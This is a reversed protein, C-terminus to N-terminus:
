PSLYFSSVLESFAKLAWLLCWGNFSCRSPESDPKYDSVHRYQSHNHTKTHNTPPSSGLPSAGHGYTQSLALLHMNPCTSICLITHDTTRFLGKWSLGRTHILGMNWFVADMKLFGQLVNLLARKQAYLMIPWCTNFWWNGCQYTHVAISASSFLSTM